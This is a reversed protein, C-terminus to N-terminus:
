PKHGDTHKFRCVGLFCFFSLGCWRFISLIVVPLDRRRAVLCCSCPPFLWVCCLCSSAGVGARCLYGFICAEGDSRAVILGSPVSGLGPKGPVRLAPETDPAAGGPVHVAPAGEHARGCLRPQQQGGVQIPAAAAPARRPHGPLLQPALPLRQVQQVSFSLRNGSTQSKRNTIKPSPSFSFSAPASASYVCPTAAALCEGKSAM